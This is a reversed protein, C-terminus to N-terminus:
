FSYPKRGEVIQISGKGVGNWRSMLIINSLIRTCWIGLRFQRAQSLQRTSKDFENELNPGSAVVMISPGCILTTERATGRGAGWHHRSLLFQKNIEDCATVQCDNQHGLGVCGKGVKGVSDKITVSIQM